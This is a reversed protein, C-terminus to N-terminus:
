SFRDLTQKAQAWRGRLTSNTLLKGSSAARGVATDYRGTRMGSKLAEPDLENGLIDQVGGAFQAQYEEESLGEPKNQYLENYVDQGRLFAMIRSSVDFSMGEPAADLQQQLNATVSAVTADDVDALFMRSWLQQMQEKVAAPDVLRRVPGAGGGGGGGNADFYGFFGTASELQRLRVNSGETVGAQELIDFVAANDRWDLKDPDGGTSAVREALNPDIAYVLSLLQDGRYVDMGRQFNSNAGLIGPDTRGGITGQESLLNELEQLTERRPDRLIQGRGSRVQGV